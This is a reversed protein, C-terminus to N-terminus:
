IDLHSEKKLVEDYFNSINKFYIENSFEEKARKEGAKGLKQRLDPDSMLMDMKEALDNVNESQFLLGDVGNNIVTPIGGVNSGIRPKGAAMAEVLVRGMAESRSPLVFVACSGIHEPMAAYPVPKHHYIQPHEAITENLEKPNPYWGLIKLKWEPYRPAIKKFAKILIDVGKLKFPHGAFLIIKEEKINKFMEISVLNPFIRIIQGHLINKFPSIQNEFLLKIGHTKKLVFEMVKPYIFYKFKAMQSHDEDRYVDYSTYIGNVQCAFKARHIRSILFGILGTKLPDYTTVLDIREKKMLLKLANWICFSFFKLIPMKSRDYKM